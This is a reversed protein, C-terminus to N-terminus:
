IEADKIEAYATGSRPLSLSLCLALCASLSSPGPVLCVPLCSCVSVSLCFCIITKLEWDGAYTMYWSSLSTSMCLSVCVCLCRCSWVCFLLSYYFSELPFFDKFRKLVNITSRHARHPTGSRSWLVVDIKRLEDSRCWLWRVDSLKKCLIRWENIWKSFPNAHPVPVRLSFM